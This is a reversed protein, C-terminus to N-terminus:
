SDRCEVDLSNGAPAPGAQTVPGGFTRAYEKCHNAPLRGVPAGLTRRNQQKDRGTGGPALRHFRDTELAWTAGSGPRQPKVADRTTPLM